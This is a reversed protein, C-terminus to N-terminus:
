PKMGQQPESEMARRALDAAAADTLNYVYGASRSKNDRTSEIVRKVNDAPTVGATPIYYNTIVEQVGQLIVREIYTIDHTAGTKADQLRDNNLYLKLANAFKLDTDSIFYIANNKLKEKRDILM